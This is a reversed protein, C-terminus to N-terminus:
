RRCEKCRGADDLHGACKPCMNVPDRSRVVRTEKVATWRCYLGYVWDQAQRKYKFRLGNGSWKGSSDAIVQPKYSM